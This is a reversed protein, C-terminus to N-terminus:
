KLNTAEVHYVVVNHATLTIYFDIDEHKHSIRNLVLECFDEGLSTALSTFCASVFGGLDFLSVFLADAIRGGPLDVKLSGEIWDERSFVYLKAEM